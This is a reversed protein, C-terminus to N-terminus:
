RTVKRRAPKTFWRTIARLGRSILLGSHMSVALLLLLVFKLVPFKLFPLLAKQLVYVYLYKPQAIRSEVTLGMARLPGVSCTGFNETVSKGSYEQGNVVLRRSGQEQRGTYLWNQARYVKGDHREGTLPNKQEPDAYSLLGNLETEHRLWQTCYGLFRSGSNPPLDDALVLRLLERSDDKTNFPPKFIAGTEANGESHGFVAAGVLNNQIRVSFCHSAIGAPQCTRSYHNCRVFDSVDKVHCPSFVLDDLSGAPQSYRNV